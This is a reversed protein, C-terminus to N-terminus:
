GSRPPLASSVQAPSVAAIDLTDPFSRNTRTATAPLCVRELALCRCRAPSAARADRSLLSPDNHAEARACLPATAPTSASADYGLTSTEMRLGPGRQSSSNSRALACSNPELRM